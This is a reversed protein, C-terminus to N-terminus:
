WIVQNYSQTASHDVLSANFLNFQQANTSSSQLQKSPSSCSSSTSEPLYFMDSSSTSSYTSGNSRTRAPTVPPSADHTSSAQGVADTSSNFQTSRPSCTGSVLDDLPSTQATNSSSSSPTLLPSTNVVLDLMDSAATSVQQTQSLTSLISNDSKLSNALILSALQTQLTELQKDLPLVDMM